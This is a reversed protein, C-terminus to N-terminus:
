QVQSQALRRAKLSRRKKKRGNKKPVIWGTYERNLYEYIPQITDKRLKGVVWLNCHQCLLSRIEQTKHCHDVALRNKLESQHKSCLACRGEQKDFLEQYQELTIGYRTKLRYVLAKEKKNVDNAYYKRQIEAARLRFLLSKRKKRKWERHYERRSM